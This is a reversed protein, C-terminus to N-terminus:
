ESYLDYKLCIANLDERARFTTFEGEWIGSVKLYRTGKLIKCHEHGAKRIISIDADDYEDEDWGITNAIWESADCHYQKRAIPTLVKAFKWSM